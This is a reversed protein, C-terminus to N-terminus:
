SGRGARQYRNVARNHDNLNRSFESTGDGRAVFYFFDSQAPRLAALLSDRGPLAIPTPPLGVRTYTNWPHDTDLHRRRLRGEFEAGYGYIVTPDTQLRMGIRLRNVFVSAVLGREEARGTEKEIISALILAEYPSALPLGPERAEWASALQAQMALYARRYLALASSHKDFLYTDPFFLGEPHTEGAGIRQLIEADSLGAADQSLFAHAEVAARLQRFNWGEVVTLGAQSVDGSSLKLILQWLTLGDHVEYSGALIREAKGAARAIWYLEEPHVPVGAAAITNAAQRMNQGRQVTFDVVPGPLPLPRLAVWWYAGALAACVLVVLLFLRLLLFKM